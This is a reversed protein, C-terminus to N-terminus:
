LNRIRTESELSLTQGGKQFNLRVKVRRIDAANGAANGNPDLYTFQLGSGSQLDAALLNNNRKLDTGVLRFRIPQNHIDTFEFDTTNFTTIRSTDALRIERVMRNMGMRSKLLMEKRVTIMHWSQLTTSVIRAGVGFLVSMVVITVLVEILTFGRINERINKKHHRM